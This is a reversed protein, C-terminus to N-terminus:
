RDLPDPPPTVRRRCVRVLLEGVALSLLFMGVNVGLLWAVARPWPMAWFEDLTPMITLGEATAV